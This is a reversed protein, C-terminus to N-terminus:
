EGSHTIYLSEPSPVIRRKERQYEFAMYFRLLCVRLLGAGALEAAYKARISKELERLGSQYELTQHLRETGDAVIRSKMALGRKVAM